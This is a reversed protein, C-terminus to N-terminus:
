KNVHPALARVLEKRLATQRSLRPVIEAAYFSLAADLREEESDISERLSEVQALLNRFTEQTQALARGAIPTPVLGQVGEDTAFSEHQDPGPQGKNGKDSKMAM